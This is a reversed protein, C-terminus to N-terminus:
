CSFLSVVPKKRAIYAQEHTRPEFTNTVEFGKAELDKRTLLQAGHGTLFLYGGEKLISNVQDLIPLVSQNPELM